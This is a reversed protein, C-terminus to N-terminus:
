PLHGASVLRSALLTQPIWVVLDDFEGGNASSSSSATRAYFPTASQGDHTANADEDANSASADAFDSGDIGRGWNRQGHSIVVAVVQDALIYTDPGTRTMVRKVGASSLTLPAGAGNAFGKTVSYRLLKGWADSRATGLVAWPLYGTCDANTVCDPTRETGDSDSAAPRPLRGNAMAFGLLAERAEDLARQTEESYRHELHAALPGLLGALLMSVVLMAIAVEVLTFGGARRQRRRRLRLLSKM